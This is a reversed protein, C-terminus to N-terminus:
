FLIFLFRHLSGTGHWYSADTGILGGIVQIVGAETHM